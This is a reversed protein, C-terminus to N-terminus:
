RKSRAAHMSVLTKVEDGLKRILPGMTFNFSTLSQEFAGADMTKKLNMFDATVVETGFDDLAASVAAQAEKLDALTGDNNAWRWSDNKPIADLLKAASSTAVSYAVKTKQAAALESKKTPTTKTKKRGAGRHKAAATTKTRAEGGRSSKKQGAGRNDTRDERGHVSASAIAGGTEINRKPMNELM